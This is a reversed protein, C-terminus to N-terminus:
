IEMHQKLRKIAKTRLQSVRSESVDLVHGIGKLTMGQFFSLTVIERERDPLSAIAHKLAGLMEKKLLANEPLVMDNDERVHYAGYGKVWEISVINRHQWKNKANVIDRVSLGLGKAIQEDSPVRGHRSTWETSFCEIDDYRKRVNRPLWDTKRIFDIIAGRIRIAAYTNFQIGRKVDFRKIADILGLTGYSVLEEYDFYNKYDKSMNKAIHYVLGLYEDIM